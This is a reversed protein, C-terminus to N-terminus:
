GLVFESIDPRHHHITAALMIIIITITIIIMIHIISHNASTRAHQSLVHCVGFSSSGSSIRTEFHKVMHKGERYIVAPIIDIVLIGLRGAPQDEIRAARVECSTTRSSVTLCYVPLLFGGFFIHMPVRVRWSPPVNPLAPPLSHPSPQPWPGHKLHAGM